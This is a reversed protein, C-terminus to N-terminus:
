LFINENNNTLHIKDANRLIFERKVYCTSCEWMSLHFTFFQLFFDGTALFQVWARQALCFCTCAHVSQCTM